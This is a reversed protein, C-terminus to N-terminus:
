KHLRDALAAEIRVMVVRKDVMKRQLSDSWYRQTLSVNSIMEGDERHKGNGLLEMWRESGVGKVRVSLDSM